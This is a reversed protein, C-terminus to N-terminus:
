TSNHCKFTEEHSMWESASFALLIVNVHIRTKRRVELLCHGCHNAEM